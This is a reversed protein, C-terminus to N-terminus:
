MITDLYEKFQKIEHKNENFYNLVSNLFINKSQEDNSAFTYLAAQMSSETGKSNIHGSVSENIGKENISARIYLYSDNENEPFEKLASIVDLDYDELDKKM